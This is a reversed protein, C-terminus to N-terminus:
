VANIKLYCQPQVFGYGAPNHARTYVRAHMKNWSQLIGVVWTSAWPHEIIVIPRSRDVKRDHEMYLTHVRMAQRNVLIWDQERRNWADLRVRKIGIRKGDEISSLPNIPGYFYNAKSQCYDIDSEHFRARLFTTFLQARTKVTVHCAPIKCCPIGAISLFIIVM